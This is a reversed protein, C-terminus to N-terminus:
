LRDHFASALISFGPEMAPTPSEKPFELSLLPPADLRAAGSSLDQTPSSQTTQGCLFDRTSGARPHCETQYDSVRSSGAEETEGEKKAHAYVRSEKRGRVTSHEERCISILSGM